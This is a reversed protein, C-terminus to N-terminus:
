AADRWKRSTEDNAVILWWRMRDNGGVIVDDGETGTIPLNEFDAPTLTSGDGFVIREIRSGDAQVGYWGQVTIKDTSGNLSFELAVLPTLKANQKQM